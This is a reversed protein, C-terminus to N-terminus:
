EFQRWKRMVSEWPDAIMIMNAEADAKKGGVQIIRDYCYKANSQIAGQNSFMVMRFLRIGNLELATTCFMDQELFIRAAKLCHELLVLDYEYLKGLLAELVGDEVLRARRKPETALGGLAIACNVLIHSDEEEEFPVLLAKALRSYACADDLNIGTNSRTAVKRAWVIGRSRIHSEPSELLKLLPALTDVPEALPQIENEPMPPPQIISSFAIREDFSHQGLVSPTRSQMVSPAQSPQLPHELGGSVQPCLSVLNSMSAFELPLQSPVPEERSLQIAPANIKVIESNQQFQQLVRGPNTSYLKRPSQPLNRTSELQKILDTVRQSLADEQGNLGHKKTLILELLQRAHECHTSTKLHGGRQAQELLDVILELLSVENLRATISILIKLLSHDILSQLIADESSLTIALKILVFAIQGSRKYLSSNTILKLGGSKIFDRRGQSFKMLAIMLDLVRCLVEDMGQTKIRVLDLLAQMSFKEAYLEAITKSKFCQHLLDLLAILTAGSYKSLSLHLVSLISHHSQSPISRGSFGLRTFCNMVRMFLQEDSGNGGWKVFFAIVAELAAKKGSSSRLSENELASEDYLFSALIHLCQNASSFDQSHQILSLVTQVEQPHLKLDKPFIARFVSNRNDSLLDLLTM